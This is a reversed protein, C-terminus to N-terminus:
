RTGPSCFVSNQYNPAINATAYESTHERYEKWSTYDGGEDAGFFNEMRVASRRIRPLIAGAPLYSRQDFDVSDSTRGGPDQVRLTFRSYPIQFDELCLDLREFAGNTHRGITYYNNARLTTGEPIVILKQVTGEFRLCWGGIDYPVPANNMLEIYCDTLDNEEGQNNVSGAWHVESVYVEGRIDFPSVNYRLAEPEGLGCTAVSVGLLILVFLACGHFIYSRQEIKMEAM